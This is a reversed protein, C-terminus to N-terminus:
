QLDVFFYLFEKPDSNLHNLAEYSDGILFSSLFYFLLFFSQRM